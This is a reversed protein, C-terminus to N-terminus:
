HDFEDSGVLGVDGLVIEDNGFPMVVQFYENGELTVLRAAVFDDRWLLLRASGVAFCRAWTPALARLQGVAGLRSQEGVARTVCVEEGELQELTAVLEKYDL